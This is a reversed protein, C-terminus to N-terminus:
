ASLEERVHQDPHSRPIDAKDSMDTRRHSMTPIARITHAYCVSRIKRAHYPEAAGEDLSSAPIRRRPKPEGQDNGRAEAIAFVTRTTAVASRRRAYARRSPIRQGGRWAARYWVLHQSFKKTAMV